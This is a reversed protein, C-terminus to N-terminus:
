KMKELMKRFRIRNYRQALICPMNAAFAYVIMILGAWWPNWIFFLPSFLIVIWHTLEARCIELIFREVYEKNMSVMRKKRFGKKFLASGDPLLEKWRRIRFLDDYIKGGKEWKIENYLKSNVNILREPLSTAIYAISLHIVLWLVVNIIAIWFVPIEILM